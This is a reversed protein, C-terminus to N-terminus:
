RSRSSSCGANAFLSNAEIIAALKSKDQVLEVNVADALSEAAGALTKDRVKEDKAADGGDIEMADDDKAVALEEVVSEVIELVTQSMDIDTRAASVKGLDRIAYQRYGANQRKAERVIIKTIESGIKAEAKWFDSGKEVFRVFAALVVEKGEWSEGGLAKQLAPWIIGANSKSIGETPLALATCADAIARSATHKLVWRPSDLHAQSLSMIEKLYLLVARSGGVNENWTNQFLEKVHENSDHKAVFIFPLIDSAFSNFRDTAHKSMAYVIDGSAIRHRDEELEFYLHKSYKILQLIQDDSAVRSVYGAAEAYSKSITDNRDIVRKEMLKLFRDSHPRFTQNHRTSFSVLIRACAVNSPLGIATKMANELRSALQTMTEDDLLDLCREVAEM